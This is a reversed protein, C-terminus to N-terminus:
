FGAGEQRMRMGYSYRGKPFLSRSYLLVGGNAGVYWRRSLLAADHRRMDLLRAESSALNHAEVLQRIEGVADGAAEAILTALSGTRGDMKRACAAHGGSLHHISYCVPVGTSDSRLSEVRALEAGEAFGSEAALGADAQRKRVSLLRFGLVTVSRVFSEISDSTHVFREPSGQSQVRTGIGARRSVMGRLELERIAARVTIRSVGHRACLAMETPLLSGVPYEGAQIAALLEGALRAYRTTRREVTSM